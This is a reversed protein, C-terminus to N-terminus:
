AIVAQLEALLQAYRLAKSGRPRRQGAEWRCLTVRNVGLEKALRAQSVGAAERIARALAPSPAAKRLRVQEVLRLADAMDGVKRCTRPM